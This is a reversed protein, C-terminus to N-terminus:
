LTSMSRQKSCVKETSASTASSGKGKDTRSFQDNFNRKKNDKVYHLTGGNAAKMRVEKQVFMGKCRDIDWKEPQINYNVFTDFEKPLAVFIFHVLFEDKVHLNMPKLNSNMHSMKLIHERIGTGDGGRSYRETM